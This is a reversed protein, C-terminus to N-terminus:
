CGCDALGTGIPDSISERSVNGLRIRQASLNARVDLSRVTGDTEYLAGSHDSKNSTIRVYKTARVYFPVSYGVFENGEAILAGQRRASAFIASVAWKARASSGNVHNRRFYFNGVTGGFPQARYTSFSVPVASAGKRLEVLNDDIMLDRYQAATEDGLRDAPPVDGFLTQSVFANVDSVTNDRIQIGVFPGSVLVATRQGQIVNGEILIQQNPAGWDYALVGVAFAQRGAQDIFRNRRITVQRTVPQQVLPFSGSEVTMTSYTIDAEPAVWVVNDRIDAGVTTSLRMFQERCDVVVNEAVTVNVADAYIDFVALRHGEANNRGCNSAFNRM